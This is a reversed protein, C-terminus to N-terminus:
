LGSACAGVARLRWPTRSLLIPLNLTASTQAPLRGITVWSNTEFAQVQVDVDTSRTQLVVTTAKDFPKGVDPRRPVATSDGVPACIEPPGNNPIPRVDTPKIDFLEVLKADPRAPETGEVAGYKNVLERYKRASMYLIVDFHVLTDDPVVSAGMNLILMKAMQARYRAADTDATHLIGPMNTAILLISAVLAIALTRRASVFERLRPSKALPLLALAAFGCTVPRYRYSDAGGASSPGARAFALGAWWALIAMTWAIGLAAGRVGGRLQWIIATLFLIALPIGLWLGGPALLQFSNTVGDVVYRVKELVSLHANPGHDDTALTLWWVIFLGTPVCVALWRRLPAKTFTVYAVCGVAGAVGVASSCLAFTLAVAAIWDSRGPEMTLAWGAVLCGLLALWHNFLAPTLLASPYWLLAVGLVLAIASGLRSRVIVYVTVAIAMHSAIEVFRLPWYTGFGFVSFIFHYIAIPVVSLNTDYPRFYDAFSNGRSANLWDDSNLVVGRSKVFYCIFTAAVAVAFV